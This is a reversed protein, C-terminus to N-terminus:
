IDCKHILMVNSKLHISLGGGTWADKEKRGRNGKRVKYICFQKKNLKLKGSM